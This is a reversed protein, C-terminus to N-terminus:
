ENSFVQMETILVNDAGLADRMDDAMEQLDAGEFKKFTHDMDRYIMTIQCTLVVINEIKM